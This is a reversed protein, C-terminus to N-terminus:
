REKGEKRGKEREGLKRGHTHTRKKKIGVKMKNLNGEEKSCEETEEEEAEM